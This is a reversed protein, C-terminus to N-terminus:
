FLVTPGYIIDFLVISGIFLILFLNFILLTPKKLLELCVSLLLLILLHFLDYFNENQIM